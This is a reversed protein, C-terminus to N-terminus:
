NRSSYFDLTAGLAVGIALSIALADIAVGVAVGIGAGVALWLGRSPRKPVWPASTYALSRRTM